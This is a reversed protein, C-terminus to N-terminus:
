MSMKTLPKIRIRRIVQIIMLDYRADRRDAGNCHIRRARCETCSASISRPTVTAAQASSRAGSTAEARLATSGALACSWTSGTLVSVFAASGVLTCAWARWPRFGVCVVSGALSARRTEVGVAARVRHTDFTNVRTFDVLILCRADSPCRWRRDGAWISRCAWRRRRANM